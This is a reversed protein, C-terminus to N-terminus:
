DWLNSSIVNDGLCIVVGSDAPEAGMTWFDQVRSRWCFVVWLRGETRVFALNRQGQANLPGSENHSQCQVLNLFYGLQIEALSGLTTLVSEATASQKLRSVALRTAPLERNDATGVVNPYYHGLWTANMARWVFPETAEMDVFAIQRLVDPGDVRIKLKGRLIAEAVEQGGLINLLAEEQGRTWNPYKCKQSM